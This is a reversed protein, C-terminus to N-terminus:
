QVYQLLQELDKPQNSGSAKQAKEWLKLVESANEAKKKAAESSAQVAEAETKQAEAQVRKVAIADTEMKWLAEILGLVKDYRSAVETPGLNGNLSQECLRFLAERLFMLSQSRKALDVVSSGFEADLKGKALAEKTEIEALIKETLQMAVDPPPESCMKATGNTPFVFAGRREADYQFWFPKATDFEEKSASWQFHQCAGLIPAAILILAM